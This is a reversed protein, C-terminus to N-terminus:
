NGTEREYIWEISWYCKTFLNSIETRTLNHNYYYTADTQPNNCTLSLNLKIPQMQGYHYGFNHEIDPNRTKDVSSFIVKSRSRYEDYKLFVPVDKYDLLTANFVDGHNSTPVYGNPSGSDPVYAPYFVGIENLYRAVASDYNTSTHATIQYDFNRFIIKNWYPVSVNPPYCLINGNDDIDINSIAQPAKHQATIEVSSTQAVNPNYRDVQQTNFNTWNSFGSFTNTHHTDTIGNPLNDVVVTTTNDARKCKVDFLDYYESIRITM